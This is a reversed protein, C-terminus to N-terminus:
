EELNEKRLNYLKRGGYAAGLGLLIMLGSGIPASGGLKNTQTNSGSPPDPPQALLTFNHSLFFAITLITIINIVKKKM